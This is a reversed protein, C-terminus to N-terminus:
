PPCSPPHICAHPPYPRLPKLLTTSHSAIVRLRMETPHQCTTASTISQAAHLTPLGSAAHLASCSSNRTLTALKRGARERRLGSGGLCRRARGRAVMGAMSQGRRARGKGKVCDMRSSTAGKSRPLLGRAEGTSLMLSLSSFASGLTAMRELPLPLPLLLLQALTLLLTHTHTSKRKIVSGM